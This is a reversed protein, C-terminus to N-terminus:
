ITNYCVLLKSDVLNKENLTDIRENVKSNFNEGSNYCSKMFSTLYGLIYDETIPLGYTKYNELKILEILKEVNHMNEYQFYVVKDESFSRWSEKDFDFYSVFSSTKEKGNSIPHFEEPIYKLNRTGYAERLTGDNKVFAFWVKKEELTQKLSM